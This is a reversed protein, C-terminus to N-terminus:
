DYYCKREMHREAYYKASKLTTYGGALLQGNPKVVFWTKGKNGKYIVYGNCEYDGFIDNNTIRTWKMFRVM